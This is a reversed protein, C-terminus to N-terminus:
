PVASPTGPQDQTLHDDLWLEIWSRWAKQHWIDMGEALTGEALDGEVLADHQISGSPEDSVYEM